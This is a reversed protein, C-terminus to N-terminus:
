SCIKGSILALVIKSKVKIPLEDFFIIDAEKGEEISGIKDYVNMIKAPNVTILKLADFMDIEERLLTIVSLSLLESSLKPHHTAVATLVGEEMLVKATNTKTNIIDPNSREILISSLIVPVGAKKIDDKVMHIEACEDLIINIDFEEKLELAKLIDQAKNVTIKLPIEKNLIKALAEYNLNIEKKDNIYKKTEILSKRILNFIGMRSLPTTQSNYNWKKPADGITAKIDISSNVLMSDINSIRRTKLMSSQAGIANADGSNVVVTTVGSEFAEKFSIDNPYIGNLTKLGPIIEKYIEDTDNGEVKSGSEILGMQTSIDIFGACAYAGKLDIVECNNEVIENSITKIKRGEILIDKLTIEKKEVDIINCNKLLIM